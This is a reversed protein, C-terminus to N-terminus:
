GLHLRRAMAQAACPPPLRLHGAARPALALADYVAATAARCQKLFAPDALDGFSVREPYTREVTACLRDYLRETLLVDGRLSRLQDETLAVRLRLCAPGGGGAMSQGVGVFEVADFPCDNWALLRDLYARVRPERQCEAPAVLVTRWDAATVIQSNFLYSRVVVDLPLERATVEVLRLPRGTTAEFAANLRNVVAPTDVFALEHYFFVDRDSAAIVDNHFVGADIAAPSQQAFVLQAASLGHRRAVAESAQRSQRAPFRRPAHGPDLEDRGYVFLHLGPGGHGLCLRCHNAAGEDAFLATGPLPAHHRFRDGAFITRLTAATQDAELARHFKSVLNAPTFHVKGDAADASPTVTASNAAWMASASCCAALLEPAEEAARELVDADAGTFGLQRLPGLRPRPPPPLVGQRVGLDHLRKMKALGQLAAARPNSTEGWSTMSARNGWSLTGYNHTPGVLGDFNVEHALTM